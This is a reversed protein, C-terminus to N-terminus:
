LKVISGNPKSCNFLELIQGAINTQSPTKWESKGAPILVLQCVQQLGILTMVM